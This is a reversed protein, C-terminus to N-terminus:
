SSLTPDAPQFEANAIKVDDVRNLLRRYGLLRGGVRLGLAIQMTKCDVQALRRLLRAGSLRHGELRDLGKGAHRFVTGIDARNRRHGFEDVARQFVLGFRKL